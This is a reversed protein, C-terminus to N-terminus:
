KKQKRQRLGMKRALQTASLGEALLYMPAANVPVANQSNLPVTNGMFDFVKIRDEAEEPVILRSPEKKQDWIVAVADEEREFLCAVLGDETEVRGATRTGDLFYASVAYMAAHPKMQGDYEFWTYRDPRISGAGEWPSWYWFTKEAGAALINAIAMAGVVAADEAQFKPARPRRAYPDDVADVLFSHWSYTYGGMGETMWVPNKEAEIGLVDRLRCGRAYADVGISSYYHFSVVDCMEMVGGALAADNFTKAGEWTCFGLVTCKPNARKAAPYARKALEAYKTGDGIGFAFPENWIEWYDIKGRYHDVVTEVYREWADLDSPYYWGGKSPRKGNADTLAWAPARGLVALIELGADRAADVEKDAWVWKGPEPQVYDWSLHHSADHLRVWGAGLRKAVSLQWPELRVHQGFRSEPYLGPYRPEPAVTLTIEDDFDKRENVWVRARLSGRAKPPREQAVITLGQEAMVELVNEEAVRGWFDTIETRLKVTKDTGSDNAIRINYRLLEDWGSIGTPSAPVLAAEVADSPAFASLKGEELQVGDVLVTGADTGEAMIRIAYANKPGELTVGTAHIRVWEGPAIETTTSIRHPRGGGPVYGNELALKVSATAGTARVWASLTHTQYPRLTRFRGTLSRSGNSDFNLAVCHKGHYANEDTVSARQEGPLLRLVSWGRSLGLEFSSNGLVNGKCPPKADIATEPPEAQAPAMLANVEAASAETVDYFQVDDVVVGNNPASVEVLYRFHKLSLGPRQELLVAYKGWQASYPNPETERLLTCAGTWEPTFAQYRLFPAQGGEREGFPKVWCVAAFRRPPEHAEYKPINVRLAFGIADNTRTIKLARAGEYAEDTLKWTGAATTRSDVPGVRFGLPQRDGDLDAEFGGNDVVNELTSGVAVGCALAMAGLVAGVRMVAGG